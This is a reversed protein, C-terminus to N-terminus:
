EEKDGQMPVSHTSARKKRLVKIERVLRKRRATLGRALRFIWALPLLFKHRYAWSYWSRYITMPPFLRYRLYKAKSGGGECGILNNIYNTFRGYTGSTIFYGLLEQEEPTLQEMSFLKMALERNIKEFESIGIKGLEKGIYDWDLSDENKKLFIYTDLLSRVGTGGTTFHKYEHAIMVLYFDENSFHYGYSSDEDPILRDKIDKFYSYLNGTDTQKFLSNHMEFNLVPKKIYADNNVYGYHECDYGDSLFIDRVESMKTSDCLIDNDSMQRMGLKPYWEHLLSGKLPAYWIKEAELKRLVSRRANDLLINKRISKDKAQRFENDRIGASELAYAVCATLAHEQCVTFLKQLDLKEIREKDPIKGNVACATLYIMDGAIRRFESNEMKWYEMETVPVTM